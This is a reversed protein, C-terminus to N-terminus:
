KNMSDKLFISFKWQNTQNCVLLFLVDQIEYKRKSQHLRRNNFRGIQVMDRVFIVIMHIESRENASYVYIHAMPHNTGKGQRVPSPIGSFWPSRGQWWLRSRDLSQFGRWQRLWSMLYTEGHSKENERCILFPLDKCESYVDIEISCLDCFRSIRM